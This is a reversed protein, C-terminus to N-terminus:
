ANVTVFDMKGTPEDLYEKLANLQKQIKELREPEIKQKLAIEQTKPMSDKIREAVERMRAEFAEKSEESEGPGSQCGCVVLLIAVGIGTWKRKM